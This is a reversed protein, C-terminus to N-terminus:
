PLVIDFGHPMPDLADIMAQLAVRDGEITVGPMKAVTDVPMRVFLLALMARRPGRITVAPKAPLVGVRGIMAQEGVELTATEGRDPLEIAIARVGDQRGVVHQMAHVFEDALRGHTVLIMGIM